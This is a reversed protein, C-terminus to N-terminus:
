LDQCKCDDSQNVLRQHDEAQVPRQNRKADHFECGAATRQDNSRNERCAERMHGGAQCNEEPGSAGLHLINSQRCEETGAEADDLRGDIAHSQRHLLTESVAHCSAQDASQNKGERIRRHICDAHTDGAEHGKHIRSRFTEAAQDPTENCTKRCHSDCKCQGPEAILWTFVTLIFVINLVRLYCIDSM